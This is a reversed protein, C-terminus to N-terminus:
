STACRGELEEVRDTLAEVADELRKIRVGPDADYCERCRDTFDDGSCTPRGCYIRGRTPCQPDDHDPWRM